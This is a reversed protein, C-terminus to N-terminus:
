LASGDTIKVHMMCAETRVIRKYNPDCGVFIKTDSHLGRQTWTGLEYLTIPCLTEAPFGLVM